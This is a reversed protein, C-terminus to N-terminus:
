SCHHRGFNNYAGRVHEQKETDTDDILNNGFGSRSSRLKFTEEWHNDLIYLVLSKIREINQLLIEM